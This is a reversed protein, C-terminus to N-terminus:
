GRGAGTHGHRMAEVARRLHVRVTAENVGMQRGAECNNYGALRLGMAMRQGLPLQRLLRRLKARLFPPPVDYDRAPVDNPLPVTPLEHHRRLLLRLRNLAATAAYAVFDGPPRFSRAAQCCALYAEQRIDERDIHLIVAASRSRFSVARAAAALGAELASSVM